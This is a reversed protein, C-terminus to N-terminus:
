YVEVVQNAPNYLSIKLTFYRQFIVGQLDFNWPPLWKKVVKPEFNLAFIQGTDAKLTSFHGPSDNKINFFSGPLWKEVPDSKLTVGANNIGDVKQFTVDTKFLCTWSKVLTQKCFINQM